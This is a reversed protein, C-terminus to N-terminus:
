TGALGRSPMRMRGEQITHSDLLQFPAYIIDPRINSQLYRLMGFVSPSSFSGDPPDGKADQILPIPLTPTRVAPKNEIRLAAIMRKILGVQALKISGDSQNREIHVGLFGAVSDAIELTMGIDYWKRATRQNYGRDM